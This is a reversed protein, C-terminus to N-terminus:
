RVLVVGGQAVRRGARFVGGTLLVERLTHRRDGQRFPTVGLGDGGLRASEGEQFIGDSRHM